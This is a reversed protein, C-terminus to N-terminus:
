DDFPGIPDIGPYDDIDLVAHAAATEAIQEICPTYVGIEDTHDTVPKGCSECTEGDAKVDQVEVIVEHDYADPLLGKLANVVEEKWVPATLDFGDDIWVDAVKVSVKLTFTKM